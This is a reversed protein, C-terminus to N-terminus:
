AKKLWKAVEELFGDLMPLLELISECARKANLGNYEHVLRNRLGNAQKLADGTKKSILKKGLALEINSYDDKPLSGTDKVMMAMLDLAAEAAEQFAKYSALMAKEEELIEGQWEEVQAIRKSILDMKDKYRKLRGTEM